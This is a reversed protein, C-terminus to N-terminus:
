GNINFELVSLDIKAVRRKKIAITVLKLVRDVDAGVLKDLIENGIDACLKRRELAAIQISDTVKMWPNNLSSIGIVNIISEAEIVGEDSILFGKV